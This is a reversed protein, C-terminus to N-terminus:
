LDDLEEEFLRLLDRRPLTPLLEEECSHSSFPFRPSKKWPAGFGKRLSSPVTCVMGAMGVEDDVGGGGDVEFDDLGRRRPLIPPLSDRWTSVVAGGGGDLNSPGSGDGLAMGVVRRRRPLM